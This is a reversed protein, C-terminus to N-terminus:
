DGRTRTGSVLPWVDTIGRPATAALDRVRGWSVRTKRLYLDEWIAAALENYQAHMSEPYELSCVIKEYLDRMTSPLRWRIPMEDHLHIMLTTNKFWIDDPVITHPSNGGFERPGRLHPHTKITRVAAWDSDHIHDPDELYAIWDHATQLAMFYLSNIDSPNWDGAQKHSGPPPISVFVVVAVIATIIGYLLVLIFAIMKGSPPM